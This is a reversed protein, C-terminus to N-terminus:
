MSCYLIVLCTSMYVLISTCGFGDLVAQSIVYTQYDRFTTFMNIPRLNYM